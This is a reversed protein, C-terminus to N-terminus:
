DFFAHADLCKLLTKGDRNKGVKSRDIQIIQRIKLSLSETITEDIFYGDIGLRVQEMLGGVGSALVPVGHSLAQEIVGSQSAESYLCIVFKSYKILNEFEEEDLWRRIAITNKLKIEPFNEGAICLKIPLTKAILELDVPLQYKKGRGIILCYPEEIIPKGVEPNSERQLSSIMINKEPFNRLLRKAVYNSLVIINDRSAWKRIQRNTPWVDGEHRTADHIIRWVEFKRGLIPGLLTDIPSSMLIVVRIKKNLNNSINLFNFLSVYFSKSLLTRIMSESAQLDLRGELSCDESIEFRFAKRFSFQADLRPVSKSWESYLEKALRSGGGKRGWYVFLTRPNEIPEAV